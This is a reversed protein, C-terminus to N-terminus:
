PQAFRLDAEAIAPLKGAALQALLYALVAAPDSPVLTRIHRSAAEGISRWETRRQWARELAEDLADEHATAALFGNTGDIIVEGHGAVNTAIPLRGSLMAEVLVLPLGEARSPVVLAHHDRWISGPDDTFGSFSVNKLGLYGAARELSTRHQGDGFFTLSLARNRWHERALVRLLMDQGKEATYLRGVCAVRLGQKEDPWDHREKWPVLFPNRVVVSRPLAIALQLETLRRNHESVFFVAEASEYGSRLKEFAGDVPWYLDTAKQALLVYPVKSRRLVDMLFSGDLNHGQSLLVLDPRRLKLVVRVRLLLYKRMLPHAIQDLFRGVISPFPPIRLLDIVRCGLEHLRRVRPQSAQIRPKLITVDHGTEALRAATASWLEESGGWLTANSSIVIFRRAAPTFSSHM